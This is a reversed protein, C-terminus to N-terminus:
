SRKGESEVGIADALLRASAAARKRIPYNERHAWNFMLSYFAGLILEALSEPDHERTLEGAEVGDRVLADFAEHLRRVQASEGDADGADHIAHITETLLERHMPGGAEANEAIQAFFSGLHDRTSGPQKRIAEIDVLLREIAEEALSRMLHQKSPFYNFFTKQAVDARECIESVKTARFGRRDFLESAAVLIRVRRRQKGRERRSLDPNPDGPVGPRISTPPSLDVM